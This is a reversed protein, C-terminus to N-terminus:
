LNGADDSDGSDGSMGQSGPIDVRKVGFLEEDEMIRSKSGTRAWGLCHLLQDRRWVDSLKKDRVVVM